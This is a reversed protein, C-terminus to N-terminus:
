NAAAKNEAAKKILEENWHPSRQMHAWEQETFHSRLDDPPTPKAQNAGVSTNGMTQKAKASELLEKREKEYKSANALLRAEALDEKIATRSFGTNVIRTEYLLKILEREDDNDTINALEDSFTDRAQDKQASTLRESVMREVMEEVANEDVEVDKKREINDKKLKHEAKQLRKQTKELEAKYDIEVDVVETEEVTANETSEETPTVSVEEETDQKGM